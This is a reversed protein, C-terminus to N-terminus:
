EEKKTKKAIEGLFRGLCLVIVGIIINEAAGGLSNSIIDGFRLKGAIGGFVGTIIAAVSMSGYYLVGLCEGISQLFHGVIQLTSTEPNDILAKVTKRRNMWYFLAIIGAALFVIINVVAVVIMLGSIREQGAIKIIYLVPLICAVFGLVLYVTPMWKRYISGDDLSSTVDEVPKAIMDAAPQQPGAQQYPAGSMNAPQQFQAQSFLSQLESVQSAPMWNSMGQAWVLTDPTIHQGRLAEVTFPGQQQGNIAIFYEM